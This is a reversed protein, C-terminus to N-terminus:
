KSPSIVGPASASSARASVPLLAPPSTLIPPNAIVSIPTYSGILPSKRRIRRPATPKVSYSIPTHSGASLGNRKSTSPKPTTQATQAAAHSGLGFLLGLAAGTTLVVLTILIVIPRLVAL